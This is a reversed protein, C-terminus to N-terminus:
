SHEAFLSLTNKEVNSQWTLFSKNWQPGRYEYLILFPTKQPTLLSSTSHIPTSTNYKTSQTSQLRCGSFKRTYETSEVSISINNRGKTAKRFHELQRWQVPNTTFGFCVGFIVMASNKCLLTPTIFDQMETETIQSLLRAYILDESEWRYFHGDTDDFIFKLLQHIAEGLQHKDNEL